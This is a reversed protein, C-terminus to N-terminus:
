MGVLSGMSGDPESFRREPEDEAILPVVNRHVWVSQVLGLLFMCMLVFTGSYSVLPLPIGTIPTLLICMGINEFIHAFFLAVVAAVIIRGSSDRSGFAIFLCTILLTSYGILLLLSGRFGQEEGIVGFIFDNHATKWPIYKKDHLSGKQESANWGIGKWGAKGIATSVWHPAYADGNIDVDRGEMMDLYLEIRAAGRPSAQPLIIYYALAICGFGVLMMMALYRIPIGSVFMIVLTVPVWVLASGMDGMAVVILFPIGALIGIVLVRVFPLRFIVHVRPLDQLVSGMLVIGAAIGLQTPQFMQGALSVQHVDNGKLMAWVMMALGVLYMPIGLWRIWKYDVLATTFFVVCGVLAWIKQRGAFYEGGNNLHRAASEIAYVGFILLAAMTLVLLWNMGLIKKM